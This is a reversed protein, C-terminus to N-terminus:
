SEFINGYYVRRIANVNCECPLANQRIPNRGISMVNMDYWYQMQM